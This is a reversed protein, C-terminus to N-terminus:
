SFLFAAEAVVERSDLSAQLESMTWSPASAGMESSGVRQWVQLLWVLSCSYVIEQEIGVSGVFLQSSVQLQSILSESVKPMFLLVLLCLHVASFTLESSLPPLPAISLYSQPSCPTPDSFPPYSTSHCAAMQTSGSSATFFLCFHLAIVLLLVLSWWIVSQHLYYFHLCLYSLPSVM